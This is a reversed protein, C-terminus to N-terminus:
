VCAPYQELVVSLAASNVSQSSPWFPTNPDSGAATHLLSPSAASRAHRSWQLRQARQRNTLKECCHFSQEHYWVHLVELKCRSTGLKWM